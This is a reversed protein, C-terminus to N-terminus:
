LLRERINKIIEDELEETIAGVYDAELYVCCGGNDKKRKIVCWTKDVLQSTTHDGGHVYYDDNELLFSYQNEVRKNWVIEKPQKPEFDSCKKVGYEKWHQKKSIFDYDGVVGIDPRKDCLYTIGGQALVVQSTCERCHKCNKCNM